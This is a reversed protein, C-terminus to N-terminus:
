FDKGIDGPNFVRRGKYKNKKNHLWNLELTDPIIENANENFSKFGYIAFNNAESFTDFQECNANQVFMLTKDLIYQVNFVGLSNKQYLGLYKGPAIIFPTRTQSILSVDICDEQMLHTENKKHILPRLNNSILQNDCSSNPIEQADTIQIVSPIGNIFKLRPGFQDYVIGQTIILENNNNMGIVGDIFWRTGYVYDNILRQYETALCFGQTYSAYNRVHVRNQRQFGQNMPMINGQGQFGQNMPMINGQGWFGQNIPMINGQGGFFQQIPNFGQYGYSGEDNFCRQEQFDDYYNTSESYGDENCSQSSSIRGYIQNNMNYDGSEKYNSTEKQGIKPLDYKEM